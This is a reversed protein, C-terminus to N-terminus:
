YANHHRLVFITRALISIDRTLSWLAIYELDADLRDTLDSMQHTAGRFGRVQALGTMGPKLSHRLPYEGRAIWFPKDGVRSGVAHPRPGVLSMEGKLVNLLQPFEDLSTRRLFGGIRTVRPDNRSTSLAGNSDASDVRMTRFKVMDFLCNGKGQRRQLFFVPGGDELKILAAIILMPLSFLVLALLCISTDFAYKILRGRLGLPGNSVVLVTEDRLGCPRPGEAYPLQSISERAGASVIEGYVGNSKLLFSWRAQRELPCTVVVRDQNRLLRGLRDLMFPEQNDTDLRLGQATIFIGKSRAIPPGGDEIVLENLIHGNWLRNILLPLGSRFTVLAASAFILSIAFSTWSYQLGIDDNFAVLNLLIAAIFLAILTKRVSYLGSSLASANYAKNYLAMTIYLPALGHAADM